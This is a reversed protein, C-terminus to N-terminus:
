SRVALGAMLVSFATLVLFKPYFVNTHWFLAYVEQFSLKLQHLPLGICHPSFLRTKAQLLQLQLM